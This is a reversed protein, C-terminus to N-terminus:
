SEKAEDKDDGRSPNRCARPFETTPRRLFGSQYKVVGGVLRNGKDRQASGAQAVRSLAQEAAIGSSRAQKHMELIGLQPFNKGLVTRWCADLRETALASIKGIAADLKQFVVDKQHPEAAAASIAVRQLSVRRLDYPVNVIPDNGFADGLSEVTDDHILIPIEIQMGRLRPSRRQPTFAQWTVSFFKARRITDRPRQAMRVIIGKLFIQCNVVVAACGINATGLAGM